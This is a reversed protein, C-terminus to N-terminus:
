LLGGTLDAEFAPLLPVIETEYSYKVAFGFLVLCGTIVFAKLTM